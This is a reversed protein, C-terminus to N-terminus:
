KVRTLRTLVNVVYIYLIVLSRYILITPHIISTLVNVVVIRFSYLSFDVARISSNLTIVRTDAERDNMIHCMHM